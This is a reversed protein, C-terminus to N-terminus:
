GEGPVMKPKKGFIDLYNQPYADKGGIMLMTLPMAKEAQETMEAAVQRIDWQATADERLRSFHYFERANVKWLV